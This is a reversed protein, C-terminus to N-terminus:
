CASIPAAMSANSFHLDIIKLVNIIRTRNWFEMFKVDQCTLRISLHSFAQPAESLLTVCM